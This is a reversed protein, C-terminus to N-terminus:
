HGSDLDFLNAKGRKSCTKSRYIIKWLIPYESYICCPSTMFEVSPKSSKSLFRSLFRWLMVPTGSWTAASASSHAPLSMFDTWKQVVQRQRCWWNSSLGLSKSWLASPAASLLQYCVQPMFSTFGGLNAQIIENDGCLNSEVCQRWRQCLRPVQGKARTTGQRCCKVGQWAQYRWSCFMVELSRNCRNGWLFYFVDKTARLVCIAGHSTFGRRLQKLNALLRPLGSSNKPAAPFIKPFKWYLHLWPWAIGRKEETNNRLFMHVKHSVSHLTCGIEHCLVRM